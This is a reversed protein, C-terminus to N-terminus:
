CTLRTQSSDFGRQSGVRGHMHVILGDLGLLALVAWPVVQRRTHRSRFLRSSSAIPGSPLLFALLSRHPARTANRQTIFRDPM